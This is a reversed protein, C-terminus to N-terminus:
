ANQGNRIAREANIRLVNTDEPMLHNDTKAIVETRLFEDTQELLKGPVLKSAIEELDSFPEGEDWNHRRNHPCADQCNDCGCIWEEFMSEELFPPVNGKGFTTWFSICRMPDMTYPACLSGSKCAKQCLNCADACPRVTTKLILEGDFDTVYGTLTVFSGHETYFFNNKRIIGLGAKMAAYRLPFANMGDWRIGHETMWNEFYERDFGDTRGKEPYLFYAKAYRRRMEKPYRFRGYEYTCVILSKAWPFREMIPQLTRMGGYVMTSAPVRSIREQLRDEFGAMRDPSIIGCNDLGCSIAAQQIAQETIITQKTELM